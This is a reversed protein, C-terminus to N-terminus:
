FITFAASGNLFNLLYQRIQFQDSPNFAKKMNSAHDTCVSIVEINLVDSLYKIITKTIHSLNQISAIDRNQIKM